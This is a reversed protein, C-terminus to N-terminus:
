HHGRRDINCLGSIEAITKNQPSFDTIFGCNQPERDQQMISQRGKGASPYTEKKHTKKDGRSAIYKSPQCKLSM